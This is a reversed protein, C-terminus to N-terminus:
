GSNRSAAAAAPTRSPTRLLAAAAGPRPTLTGPIIRTCSGRYPGSPFCPTKRGGGEGRGRVPQQASTRGGAAGRAKPKAGLNRGLRPPRPCPPPSVEPVADGSRRKRCKKGARLVGRSWNDVRDRGRFLRRTERDRGQARGGAGARLRLEAPVWPGILFQFNFLSPAWLAQGALGPSGGIESLALFASLFATRQSFSRNRGKLFPAPSYVERPRSAAPTEPRSPYKVPLLRRAGTGRGRARWPSLPEHPELQAPASLSAARSGAGAGPGAGRGRRGSGSPGAEGSRAEGEGEGQGRRAGSTRESEPESSARASQGLHSM